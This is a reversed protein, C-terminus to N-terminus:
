VCFSCGCLLAATFRIRLTALRTLYDTITNTPKVLSSYIVEMKENVMCISALELSNTCTTVMECDVAFIPSSATVRSYNAKSFVFGSNDSVIASLHFAPLSEFAGLKCLNQSIKHKSIWKWCSLYCYVNYRLIICFPLLNGEVLPRTSFHSNSLWGSRCHYLQHPHPLPLPLPLPM